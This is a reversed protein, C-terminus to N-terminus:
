KTIPHCQSLCRVGNVYLHTCRKGYGLSHPSNRVPTSGIATAHAGAPATLALAGAAALATTLRAASQIAL